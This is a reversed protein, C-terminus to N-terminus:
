WMVMDVLGVATVDGTHNVEKHRPNWPTVDMRSSRARGDGALRNDSVTWHEDECADGLRNVGRSSVAHGSEDDVAAVGGSQGSIKVSDPGCM